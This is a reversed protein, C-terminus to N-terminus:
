HDRIFRRVPREAHGAQGLASSAHLHPQGAELEGTSWM